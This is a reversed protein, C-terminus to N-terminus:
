RRGHSGGPHPRLAHHTLWVVEQEPDLIEAVEDPLPQRAARPVRGPRPQQEARREEARQRRESALRDFAASQEASLGLAADRAETMAEVHAARDPRDHRREPGPRDPRRARRAGDPRVREAREPPTVLHARQEATLTPALAAAAKWLAGSAREDLAGEVLSRQAPSLDLHAQVRDLHQAAVDERSPADQAHAVPLTLALVAALGLRRTVLRVTM